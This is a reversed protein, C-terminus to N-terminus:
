RGLEGVLLPSLLREVPTFADVLVPLAPAEAFEDYLRRGVSRWQRTFGYRSVLLGEALPREAAAVVFTHRQGPEPDSELWADAHPFEQQLTGLISAVLRSGPWQDVINMLLVGGTRLRSRALAFYERTLLHYPVTLDHFVDSVVADLSAVPLTALVARADAHIVRVGRPDFYLSEVATATVQPDIEAVILLADPLRARLARPLTYSGGGAFYYAPASSSHPLRALLEDILHVYPAVLLRADERHSIGHALHDLVLTRAEGWGAIGAEDVIRICYYRSERDCPSVLGDRTWALYCFLAVLGVAAATSPWRQQEFLAIALLVLVTGSATVIAHTGFWQVLWFGTVFAGVISGLAALAHMRGVVRGTRPDEALALTTLLPTLVGLFLAPLFFLAAVYLFSTSLLGLGSAQLLPAVVTLLWLIATTAVGALVLAWAALAPGAGRDAAMGGCWNGLSLGSLVVGIISTWTYLSAGVYPAILRGAVIELLLLVASSVFVALAYYVARRRAGRV